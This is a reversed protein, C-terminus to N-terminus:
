LAGRKQRPNLHRPVEARLARVYSWLLRSWGCGLWALGCTGVAICGGDMMVIGVVAAVLCAAMPFVGIMLLERANSM